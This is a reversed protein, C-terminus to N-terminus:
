RTDDAKAVAKVTAVGKKGTFANANGANVVLARAKGQKLGAKCWDVPASSSKSTTLCGAVTTGPSFVALLVDPRGKYRIGTQATALSVGTIAELTPFAEPALPSVPHAM